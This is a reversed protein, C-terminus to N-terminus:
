RGEKVEELYDALSNISKKRLNHIDFIIQKVDGEFSFPEIDNVITKEKGSYKTLNNTIRFAHNTLLYKM